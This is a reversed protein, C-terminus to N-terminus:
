QRRCLNHFGRLNSADIQDVELHPRPTEIGSSTPSVGNFGPFNWLRAALKARVGRFWRGLRGARPVGDRAEPGPVGM